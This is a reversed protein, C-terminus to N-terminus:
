STGGSGTATPSPPSRPSRRTSRIASSASRTRRRAAPGPRTGSSARSASRSRRRPMGADRRAPPISCSSRAAPRSRALAAEDLDRVVLVGAPVATDVSRRISGSTGTTRSRRARSGSRRAQVARARAVNACTSRERPGAAVGNGVPVDRRRATRRRRRSAGDDGILRGARGRRRHLPQPGFHAVEIDAELTEDTTFVRKDLRALPVTPGCFRRYEDPTVYGKAEWFPDLVGVLATGQGPFDHLDLLQFGGMGPTRLASEIDEKYCLTQLKGSAILFDRAQDAM